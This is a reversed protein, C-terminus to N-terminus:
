PRRYAPCRSRSPPRDDEVIEADLVPGVVAAHSDSTKGDRIQPHPTRYRSSAARPWARCVSSRTNTSVPMLATVSSNSARDECNDVARM